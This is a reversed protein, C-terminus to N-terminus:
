AVESEFTTENQLIKATTTLPLSVIFRTGLGPRSEVNLRGGMARVLESAEFAGIGFGGDKSSVFPKFLGNRVFEPSMGEGSDVIEIRAQFGDNTVDLFVPSGDASADIANQVLHQLAQNLAEADCKVIGPQARAIEVRHAGVFRKAIDLAFTSLEIEVPESNKSAGYRGLRALLGNLKDASNRLTILMDKRFEPNDAHKEANGALLSMQSALNKIDHMVFAIRRNFEDFRNAEMLAQHGSQEALYSALQRGAVRLLDFDEWDLNRSASPRSLVVVGVLRAFHVLPVAAWVDTTGIMWDPFDRARVLAPEGSRIQDFDVIFGTEELRASLGYGAAPSPVNLDTWRWQAAIELEAEENPVLLLGGRSDTIDAIAKVARDHLTADSDESKGVTDTFRQWEARYDYRHQFLHKAINVRVWGRAKPSPLWIIACACALVLFGVQSLRGLEGGLAALAQAIVVMALLYATIFLLSLSRFTVARSPSFELGATRAHSGVALCIAFAAIAAGKLATLLDPASSSLYAITHYNLEFLWFGALALASWRLLHRSTASAGAYLNHLLVLSGITVLLHLVASIQFILKEAEPMSAFGQGTVLLLPQLLEVIFLTIVLPRVMRMSAARGDNAFLRFLLYILAINRASEALQSSFDSAGFAASLGSWLGALGLALIAATRDHRGAEGRRLVWVAAIVCATAGAVSALLGITGILVASLGLM